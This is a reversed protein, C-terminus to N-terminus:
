AHCEIIQYIQMTLSISKHVDFREAICVNKCACQECFIVDNYMKLIALLMAKVDLPNSLCCGTVGDQTYDKIGGVYTTILPLGSTM